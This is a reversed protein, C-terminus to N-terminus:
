LRHHLTLRIFPILFFIYIYIWHMSVARRLVLIHAILICLLWCWTLTISCRSSIICAELLLVVVTKANNIFVLSFIFFLCVFLLATEFYFFIACACEYEVLSFSNLWVNENRHFCSTPENAMKITETNQYRRKNNKSHKIERTQHAFGNSWAM